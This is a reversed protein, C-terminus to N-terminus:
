CMARRTAAPPRDPEGPQRRRGGRQRCLEGHRDGGGDITDAGAGGELHRQRRAGLLSNAVGSGIVHDSSNSARVNEIRLLTDTSGYGDLAFGSALNVFIGCPSTTTSPSTRVARDTSRTTAGRGIFREGDDGGTFRDDFNSGALSWINILTDTSVAGGAAIRRGTRFRSAFARAARSQFTAVIGQTATFYTAWVGTDRTSPGDLTDAGGNGRLFIEDGVRGTVEISDNLDSGHVAEISNLTDGGGRRTGEMVGAGTQLTVTVGAGSNVYTAADFGAGGNLLDGGPGGDLVDDGADGNLTDNNALGFLVDGGAGGNLTDAETGGTLVDPGPTGNFTAM